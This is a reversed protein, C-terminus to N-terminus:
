EHRKSITMKWAITNEDEIGYAWLRVVRTVPPQLGGPQFIEPCIHKWPLRLNSLIGSHYFINWDLLFNLPFDTKLVLALQEFNRFLLFCKWVTFFKLGVRNKLALALQEFIRFSLFYANLLHIWPVSQKEPCACTTWFDQIYFTYEVCHFIELCVYTAWFDQIIFINWYLSSNWTLYTKWPLRLNSLFGSHYFTYLWYLSFHWPLCQKEPCTYTTWFHQVTFFNEICHIWHINM